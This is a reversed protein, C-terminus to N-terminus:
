HLDNNKKRKNIIFEEILINCEKCYNINTLLSYNEKIYSLLTVINELRQHPNVHLGDRVCAIWGISYVENERTFKISIDSVDSNPEFTIIFEIGNWSYCIIDVGINKKYGKYLLFSASEIIKKKERETMKMNNTVKNKLLWEEMKANM